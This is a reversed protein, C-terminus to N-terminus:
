FKCCKIRFHRGYDAFRIEKGAMYEDAACQRLRTVQSAEYTTYTSWSCLNGDPKYSSKAWSGSQCSLIQGTANLAIGAGTCSAGATARTTVQLTGTTTSSSTLTGNVTVNQATLSNSVTADRAALTGAVNATQAYLTDSVTAIPTSLTGTVNATQANLVSVDNISHGGLSLNTEMRNLAPNGTALRSLKADLAPESGPIGITSRLVFAAPDAVVTGEVGNAVNHVWGEVAVQQVTFTTGTCSTIFDNNFKNQTPFHAALHPSAGGKMVTMANTCNAAQGPWAGQAMRYTRAADLLMKTESIAVETRRENVADMIHPATVASMIGMLLIVISLEILTFGSSSKKTNRM